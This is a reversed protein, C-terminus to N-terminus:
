GWSAIRHEYNTIMTGKAVQIQHTWTNPPGPIFRELQPRRPDTVDMITWGGEWLHAIYLFWRDAVCQIALKFGPRDQLDHYAVLDVDRSFPMTKRENYSFGNWKVCPSM